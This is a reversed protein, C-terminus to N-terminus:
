KHDFKSQIEIIDVRNIKLVPLGIRAEQQVHIRLTKDTQLIAILRTNNKTQETDSHGPIFEEGNIYLKDRVLRVKNNSNQRARKAEGYLQKRKDEIEYPFHEKVRYRSGILCQPAVTRVLEKDKFFTFKAIIPRPYKQFESYRGLRHVRDFSIEKQINLETRIFDKIMFECNEVELGPNRSEPIGSFILNERMSRWQIDIIKEQSNNRKINIEAQQKILYDVKESLEKIKCDTDTNGQILDDYIDSYHQVSQDYDTIKDKMSNIYTNMNAVRRDTDPLKQQLISIQAIQTEINTMRTNQNVLQQEVRSWRDNQTELQTQINQLQQCMGEAWPPISSVSSQSQFQATNMVEAECIQNDIGLNQNQDSRNCASDLELSGGNTPINQPGYLVERSQSLMNTIESTHDSDHKVFSM